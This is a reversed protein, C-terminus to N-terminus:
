RHVENWSNFEFAALPHVRTPTMPDSQGVGLPPPPKVQFYLAVVIPYAEPGLGLQRAVHRATTERQPAYEDLQLNTSMKPHRFKPMKWWWPLDAVKEFEYFHRKGTADTVQSELTITSDLPDPAFMGWAQWLGLPLMYYRFKPMMVAKIPSYPLVWSITAAIHFLIYASLVLRLATWRRAL